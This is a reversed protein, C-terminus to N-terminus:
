ICLLFFYPLAPYFPVSIYTPVILISHTLVISPPGEYPSIGPSSKNLHKKKESPSACWAMNM